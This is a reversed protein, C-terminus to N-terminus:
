LPSRVGRLGPNALRTYTSTTHISAHGLLRQIISIDIGGEVLHTAFSHRLDHPTARKSIGARKCAKGMVLQVSRTSLPKENGKKNKHGSPFLLDAPKRGAMFEKLLPIMKESLVTMRDKRGKGKRVMLTLSDIHIDEVRLNVAESIRLGSSYLLSIVCRHKMNSISNLLKSIEDRSLIRPLHKESRLGQLFGASLPRKIIDNYYFELSFRSMRITSFSYNNDVLYLFWAKIDQHEAINVEKGMTVLLWRHTRRVMGCYNKITSRSYRKLALASMFEKEGPFAEALQPWKESITSKKMRSYHRDWKGFIRRRVQLDDLFYNRLIM